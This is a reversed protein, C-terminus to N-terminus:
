FLTVSYAVCIPERNGLLEIIDGRVTWEIYNEVSNLTYLVTEICVFLKVIQNSENDLINFRVVEVKNKCFFGVLLFIGAFFMRCFQNFLSFLSCIWESMFVTIM